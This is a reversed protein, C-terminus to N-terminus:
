SRDELEVPPRETELKAEADPEHRRRLLAVEQALRRVEKSLRTLQVAYYLLVVMVFLLGFFFITSTEYLAGIAHTVTKLLGTWLSLLAAGVSAVLWLLSYEESLRRRRVLDLVVLVVGVALVAAIMQARTM